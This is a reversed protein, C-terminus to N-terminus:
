KKLLHEIYKGLVDVELNLAAGSEMAGFRTIELTHPILFVEFYDADVKNVTLSVGDLTVSGKHIMYKALQAPFKLHWLQGNPHVEIADLIAIADVHGQVWHGGLRDSLRLARELHVSDGATLHGLTTIQLSEQAVDFEIASETDKVLTLCCGNVAISEGTKLDNWTLPRSISLRCCEAATVVSFVEQTYEVIGTFM